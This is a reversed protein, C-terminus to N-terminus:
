ASTTLFAEDWEPSGPGAPEWEHDGFESLVRIGINHFWGSYYPLRNGDADYSVVYQISGNMCLVVRAIKSEPPPDLLALHKSVRRIPLIRTELEWVPQQWDPCSHRDWSERPPEPLTSVRPVLAELETKLSLIENLKKCVVDVDSRLQYVQQELRNIKFM